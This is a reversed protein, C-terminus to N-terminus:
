IRKRKRGRSGVKNKNKIIGGKNGRETDADREREYEIGCELKEKEKREREKKGKEGGEGKEELGEQESWM